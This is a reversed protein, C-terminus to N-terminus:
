VVEKTQERFELSSVTEYYDQRDSLLALIYNTCTQDDIVNYLSHDYPFGIPKIRIESISDYQWFYHHASLKESSTPYNIIYSKKAYYLKAFRDAFDPSVYKAFSDYAEGFDDNLLIHEVYDM